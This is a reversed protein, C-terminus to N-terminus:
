PHNAATTDESTFVRLLKDSVQNNVLIIGQNSSPNNLWGQVTATDLTYTKTVNGTGTWSTDQWSVGSVLDTGIGKAGATNWLNTSDRNTWGIGAPPPSWANKVYYGQLINGGYYDEFTLQLTASTVHTGSPISINNFRILTETEYGGTSSVFVNGQNSTFDNAGNGGNQSGIWGDDSSTYGNVGSQFTVTSASKSSSTNVKESEGCSAAGILSTIALTSAFFSQRVRSGQSEFVRM